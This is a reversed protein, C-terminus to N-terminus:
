LHTRPSKKRGGCPVVDAATIVFLFLLNLDKLLLPFLGVTFEAGDKRRLNKFDENVSGSINYIYFNTNSGLDDLVM